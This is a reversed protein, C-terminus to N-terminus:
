RASLGPAPGSWLRRPPWPERRREFSGARPGLQRKQPNSAILCAKRLWRFRTVAGRQRNTPGLAQSHSVSAQLLNACEGAARRWIEDILRHSPVFLQGPAGPARAAGSAPPGLAGPTGGLSGAAGALPRKVVGPLIRQTTDPWRVASSLPAVIARRVPTGRRDIPGVPYSLHVLCRLASLTDRGPHARRGSSRRSSTWLHDAIVASPAAGTPWRTLVAAPQGACPTSAGRATAPGVAPRRRAPAPLWPAWQSGDEKDRATSAFSRM